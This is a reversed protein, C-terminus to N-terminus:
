GGAADAAPDAGPEGPAATAQGGSGQAEEAGAEMEQEVEAEPSAMAPGEQAAPAQEAGAGGKDILDMVAANGGVGQFDAMSEPTMAEPGGAEYDAAVDAAVDSGQEAAPGPGVRQQDQEVKKSNSPAKKQSRRQMAM